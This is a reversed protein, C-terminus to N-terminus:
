AEGRRAILIAQVLEEPMERVAAAADGLAAKELAITREYSKLYARCDPCAALHADFLARESEALEGSVYDILFEIFDRCTM